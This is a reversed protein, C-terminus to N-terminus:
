FIMLNPWALDFVSCQAGEETLTSKVGGTPISPNPQKYYMIWKLNSWIHYTKNSFKKILLLKLVGGGTANPTSELGGLYGSSGHPFPNVKVDYIVDYIAKM